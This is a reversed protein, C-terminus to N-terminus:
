ISLNIDGYKKILLKYLKKDKNVIKLLNNNISRIKNVLLNNKKENKENKKVIRESIIEKKLNIKQQQELELIQKKLIPNDVENSKVKKIVPKSFVINKTYDKSNALLERLLELRKEKVRTILKKQEESKSYRDVKTNNFNKRSFNEIHLNKIFSIFSDINNVFINNFM